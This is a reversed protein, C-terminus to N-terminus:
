SDIVTAIVYISMLKNAHSEIEGRILGRSM